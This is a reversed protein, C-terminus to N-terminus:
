VIEQSGKNHVKCFAIM